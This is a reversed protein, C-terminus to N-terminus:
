FFATMMGFAVSIVLWYIVAAMQLNSSKNQFLKTALVSKSFIQNAFFQNLSAMKESNSHTPTLRKKTKKNKPKRSFFLVFLPPPDIYLSKLV